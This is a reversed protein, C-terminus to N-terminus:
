RSARRASGGRERWGAGARAASPSRRRRRRRGVELADLRLSIRSSGPLAGLFRASARSNTCYTGSCCPWKSRWARRRLVPRARRLDEGFQLSVRRPVSASTAASLSSSRSRTCEGIMLGSTQSRPWMAAYSSRHSACRWPPSGSSRRLDPRSSRRKRSEARPERRCRHAPRSPRARRGAAPARRAGRSHDGAAPMPSPTM